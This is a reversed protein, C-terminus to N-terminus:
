QSSKDLPQKEDFDRLIAIEEPLLYCKLLAMAKEKWNCGM